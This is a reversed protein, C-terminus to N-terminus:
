ADYFMSQIEENTLRKAPQSPVVEENENEDDEEESDSLSKKGKRVKVLSTLKVVEAVLTLGL